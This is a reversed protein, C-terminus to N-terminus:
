TALEPAHAAHKEVLEGAEAQVREYMGPEYLFWYPRPVYTPRNVQVTPVIGKKGTLFGYLDAAFTQCNRYEETYSRERRIYNLLFRCIHDERNFSLRVPHSSIIEPALFRLQPGTYKDMYRKFEVISKAEVDSCRIEAFHGMWPAVMEAPFHRYLLPRDQEKDHYWNSKCYRGGIGNLTALEVVTCFRGHSWELLLAAHYTLSNKTTEPKDGRAYRHHFLHARTATAVEEGFRSAQRQVDAIKDTGYLLKPGGREAHRNHFWWAHGPSTRSYGMMSWAPARLTVRISKGKAPFSPKDKSGFEWFRKIYSSALGRAKCTIARLEMHRLAPWGNLVGNFIWRGDETQTLSSFFDSQRVAPIPRRPKLLAPDCDDSLLQAHWVLGVTGPPVAKAADKPSLPCGYQSEMVEGPGLDAQSALKALDTLRNEQKAELPTLGERVFMTIQQERLNEDQELDLWLDDVHGEVLSGEVSSDPELERKGEKGEVSSKKKKKKKKIKKKKRKDSSM